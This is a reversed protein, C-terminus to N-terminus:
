PNPRGGGAPAAASPEAKAPAPAGAKASFSDYKVFDDVEKQTPESAKWASAYYAGLAAGGDNLREIIFKKGAEKHLDGSKELKYVPVVQDHSRKLYAITFNWCSAPDHADMTAAAASQPVQAAKCMSYDISFERIIGGDIMAHFGNDTTFGEPNPTGKAWGHHHKTTHLPQSTDGAFHALVGMTSLINAEAMKVQSARAPDNVKQLIRWTKFQGTLKAQQECIAYAVFGPYEQQGTADKKEDYPKSNGDKGTPWKSRALALERVYRYRLMPLTELTLGFEELEEVDMYHDMYTSNMIFPNKEGRWRDPEAANWTVSERTSQERLFAPADAPLSDLALWAITRHGVADWALATSSVLLVLAASLHKKM